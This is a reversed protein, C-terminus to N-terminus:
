IPYNVVLTYNSKGLKLDSWQTIDLNRKYSTSSYKWGVTNDVTKLLTLNPCRENKEEDSKQDTEEENVSTSKPCLYTSNFIKRDDDGSENKDSSDLSQNSREESESKSKM